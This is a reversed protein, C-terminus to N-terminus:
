PLTACAAAVAAQLTDPL